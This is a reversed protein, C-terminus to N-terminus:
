RPGSDSFWSASYLGYKTCCRTVCARPPAATGPARRLLSDSVEIDLDDKRRERGPEVSRERLEAPLLVRETPDRRIVFHGMANEADTRVADDRVSRRWGAEEHVSPLGREPRRVEVIADDRATLGEQSIM